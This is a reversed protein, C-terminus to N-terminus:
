QPIYARPLYQFQPHVSSAAPMQPFQQPPQLHNMMPPMQMCKLLQQQSISSKLSSMEQQYRYEMSEILLKLELFDSSYNPTVKNEPVPPPNTRTDGPSDKKAKPPNKRLTGKLHVFTCNLDTCLKAKVSDRCLKPHFYTCDKGKKCGYKKNDGANCYKFCRKPHSFACKEDKILKNGRIGHPCKGTKYKQCVRDSPDRQNQSVPVEEKEPEPSAARSQSSSSPQTEQLSVSDHRSKSRRPKVPNSNTLCDNCLWISGGIKTTASTAQYREKIATCDHSGQFCMYCHYHPAHVEPEFDVMYMSTCDSCQSPLLAHLAYRIRAVLTDKTYIKNGDGDALDINLFEACPELMNLNFSSLVKTAVSRSASPDFATIVKKVLENNAKLLLNGIATRISIDVNEVPVSM